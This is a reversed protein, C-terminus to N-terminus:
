PAPVTCVQANTTNNTVAGIGSIVPPTTANAAATYNFCETGSDLYFVVTNAAAATDMSIGELDIAEEIGDTTAAPYGHVMDVSGAELTVSGTAGTQGEVLAKAHAIASASKVAGLASQIVGQRADDQLNAFRPVAVAALIGLIVIVVVLEILTFGKQQKM